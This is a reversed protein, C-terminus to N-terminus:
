QLTWMDDVLRRSDTFWAFPMKFYGKIGWDTGWSNRVWVFKKTRDYGVALVAHGGLSVEANKPLSLLGSKPLKNISEPVMFGFTVTNGKEISNLLEDLTNVRCYGFKAKKVDAHTKSIAQAVAKPSPKAAFRKVNYPWVIEDAVGNQMLGKIVSRIQAGDDSKTTGDIVRGNYYAMLRSLPLTYGLKIELMSTSANGTCSGLDGQNEIPNLLGIRDVVPVLGRVPAM